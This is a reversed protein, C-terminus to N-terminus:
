RQCQARRTFLDDELVVHRAHHLRADLVPVRVLAILDHALEEAVKHGDGLRWVRAPDDELDHRVAGVLVAADDLLEAAVGQLQEAVLYLM